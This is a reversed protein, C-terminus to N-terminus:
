NKIIIKGFMNNHISCQYYYTGASAPKWSMNGNSTGNNSVGSVSNATGTGQSTKIYFPHGQATIVFSIEDGVSFTIDPDNGSVKGNADNGSLYYNSNGSASVYIILDDNAVINPQYGDDTNDYCSCLILTLFLIKIKMILLKM